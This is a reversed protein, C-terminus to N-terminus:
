ERTLAGRDDVLVIVASPHLPSRDNEKVALVQRAPGSDPRFVRVAPRHLVANQGAPTVGVIQYGLLLVPIELEMGLVGQILPAVAADPQTASVLHLNSRIVAARGIHM